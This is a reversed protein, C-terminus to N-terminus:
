TPKAGIGTPLELKPAARWSERSSAVRGRTGVGQSSGGAAGLCPRALQEGRTPAVIPCRLCPQFGAPLTWFRAGRTIQRGRKRHGKGVKWTLKIRRRTNVARLLVSIQVSRRTPPSHFEGGMMWNRSVGEERSNKSGKNEPAAM